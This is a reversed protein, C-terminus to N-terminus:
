PSVIFNRTAEKHGSEWTTATWRGDSGPPLVFAQDFGSFCGNLGVPEVFELSMSADKADAMVTVQGGPTYGCGSFWFLDGVVPFSPSIYITSSHAASANAAGGILLSAVVLALLLRKM